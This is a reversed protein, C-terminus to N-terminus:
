WAADLDCSTAEIDCEFESKIFEDLDFAFDDRRVKQVIQSVGDEYGWEVLLQEVDSPSQPRQRAAAEHEREHRLTRSKPVAPLPRRPAPTPNSTEVRESQSSETGWVSTSSRPSEAQARTVNTPSSSKAVQRPRQPREPLPPPPQRPPTPRVPPPPVPPPVRSAVPTSPKIMQQIVSKRISARIKQQSDAPQKKLHHVLTEALRVTTARDGYYFDEAIAGPFSCRLLQSFKLASSINEIEEAKCAPQRRVNQIRMGSFCELLEVLLVGSHLDAHLDRVCLGRKALHENMFEMIEAERPDPRPPLPPPLAANHDSAKRHHQFGLLQKQTRTPTKYVDPDLHAGPEAYVLRYGATDPPWAGVVEMVSSSLPLRVFAVEQVQDLYEHLVYSTDPPMNFKRRCMSSMERVDVTRDVAFTRYSGDATFVKVAFQTCSMMRCSPLEDDGWRHSASGAPPDHLLPGGRTTAM